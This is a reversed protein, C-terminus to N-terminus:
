LHIYLRLKMDSDLSSFSTCSRASDCVSTGFDFLYMYSCSSTSTFFIFFHKFYITEYQTKLRASTLYICSSTSSPLFHTISMKWPAVFVVAAAVVVVVVVVVVIVVIVVVVVVVVVFASTRGIADLVM